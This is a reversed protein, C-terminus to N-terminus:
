WRWYVYAIFIAIFLTQILTIFFVDAGPVLAAELTWFLIFLCPLAVIVFQAIAKMVRMINVM